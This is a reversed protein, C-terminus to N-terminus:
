LCPMMEIQKYIREAFEKKQSESFNRTKEKFWETIRQQANAHTEGWWIPHTLFQLIKGKPEKIAQIPEGVRFRGMSDSIYWEMLVSSYANVRTGIYTCSRLVHQPPRHFSISKVETGLIQELLKCDEEIKLKIEEISPIEEMYFHLGIENGMDLLKQLTKRHSELDYLPSNVMVYYTSFLGYSQELEALPLAKDPDVDIDHRICVLPKQTEKKLANSLYVCEFETSFVCLIKRYYGFSFDANWEM